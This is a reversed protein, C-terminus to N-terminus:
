RNIKLTPRFRRRAYRETWIIEPDVGIASAIVNEMKPYSKDLASRLTSYSVGSEKALSRLTWGKKRLAYVIDAKDWDHATKKLSELVIM